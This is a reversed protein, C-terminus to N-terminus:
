SVAHLREVTRWRPLLAVPIDSGLQWNSGQRGQSTALSATGSGDRNIFSGRVFVSGTRTLPRCRRAGGGARVPPRHAAGAARGARPAAGGAPRHGRNREAWGPPIQRAEPGPGRTRKHAQRQQRPRVGHIGLLPVAHIMEDERAGTTAPAAPGVPRRKRGFASDAANVRLCDLINNTVIHYRTIYLYTSFAPLAPNASQLRLCDKCRATTVPAQGGLGTGKSQTRLESDEAGATSHEPRPRADSPRSRGRRCGATESGCPPASASGPTPPRTRGSRCSGPSGSARGRM